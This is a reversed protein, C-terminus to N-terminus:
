FLPVASYFRPQGGTVYEMRGKTTFQIAWHKGGGLPISFEDTEPEGVVYEGLRDALNKFGLRFEPKPMDGGVIDSPQGPSSEPPTLPAPPANGGRYDRFSAYVEPLKTLNCYDFQPDPSDLIFFAAEPVYAPLGALYTAPDLGNFETICITRGPFAAHYVEYARESGPYCHAGIYEFWQEIGRRTYAWIAEEWGPTMPSEAPLSLPVDSLDAWREGFDDYWAAHKRWQRALEPPLEQSPENAPIVSRPRLGADLFPQLRRHCERAWEAPDFTLINQAYMRLDFALDPLAIKATLLDEVQPDPDEYVLVQILAPNLDILRILTEQSSWITETNPCVLAKKAM